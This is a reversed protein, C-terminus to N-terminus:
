DRPALIGAASLFDAAAQARDRNSRYVTSGPNKALARDFFAVAEVFRRREFAVAGAENWVDGDDLAVAQELVAAAAALGDSAKRARALGVLAPANKPEHQLVQEFLPAAEREKGSELLLTGIGQLAAANSPDLRLAERYERAAETKMGQRRLVSALNTRAVPSSPLLVAAQMLPELAREPRGAEVLLAGYEVQVIGDDPAAKTAAALIQIAHSLDGAARAKRGLTLLRGANAPNLAVAKELYEIATPWNRDALQYDALSLLTGENKENLKLSQKWNAEALARESRVAYSDGLLRYAESSNPEIELARNAASQALFADGRQLAARGGALIEVTPSPPREPVPSPAPAVSSVSSAAAPGPPIPTPAAAPTPRVSGSPPSSSAAQKRADAAEAPRGLADYARGLLGFVEADLSGPPLNTLDYVVEAAHGDRLKEESVRKLEALDVPPPPPIQTSRLSARVDDVLRLFDPSFFEPVVELTPDAVFARRVAERALKPSRDNFHAWGAQLEMKGRRAPDPASSAADQFKASADRFRGGRFASRAERELSDSM